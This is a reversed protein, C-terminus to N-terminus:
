DDDGFMNLQRFKPKEVIELELEPIPEKNSREREKAMAKNHRNKCKPSCYEANERLRIGTESCDPNKCKEVM